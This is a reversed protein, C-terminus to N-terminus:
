AFRRFPRRCRRALRPDAAVDPPPAALDALVLEDVPAPRGDGITVPRALLRRALLTGIFGAGGTVIVRTSVDAELRGTV